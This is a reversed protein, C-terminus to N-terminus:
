QLSTAIILHVNKISLQVNTKKIMHYGYVVQDRLPVQQHIVSQQHPFKKPVNVFEAKM